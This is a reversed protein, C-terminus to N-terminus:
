GHSREQISLASRRSKGASSGKCLRRLADLAAAIDADTHRASILFSLLATDAHSSRHLVTSVGLRELAAHLEPAPMTTNTKLTQIPFSGGSASLGIAPLGTRFQLVLRHLRFRLADGDTANLMLTHRAAALAAISPPSCHIRTQSKEKFWAITAKAGAILALPAGFGKALSSVLVLGTDRLSLWSPTGGGGYGYPNAPAPARGLIGLAQTDDVVVLGEFPKVLCLYDRLPAPRGTLPNLGDTVVVPRQGCMDRRSLAVALAAPNHTRFTDALAGRPAVCQIGWRAIPYTAEDIYFKIDDNALMDFLDLFLHLTSTGLTAADCGVLGALGRELSEAERPEGLAAPRGTTIQQWPMLTGHGHRLGLYLASTFDPM